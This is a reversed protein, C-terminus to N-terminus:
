WIPEYLLHAAEEQESSPLQGAFFEGRDKQRQIRETAVLHVNKDFFQAVM